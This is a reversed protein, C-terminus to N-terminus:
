ETGGGTNAPVVNLNPDYSVTEYPRDQPPTDTIQLRGRDNRWKYLRARANPSQPLWKSATQPLTQPALFWWAAIAAILTLLAWLVVRGRQLAVTM